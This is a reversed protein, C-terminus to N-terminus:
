QVFYSNVLLFWVYVFADEIAIPLDIADIYRAVHAGGPQPATQYVQGM